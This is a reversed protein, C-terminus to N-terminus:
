SKGNILSGLLGNMGESGSFNNQINTQNAPAKQKNQAEILKIEMNLEAMKMKHVKELVSLLDDESVIGSEEAEAIKRNIIEDLLGFLRDRNRFGTEMFVSNIYHRVEPTKMQAAVVEVGMGLKEAAAAVTGTELYAEAVLLGEPAMIEPLLKDEDSM